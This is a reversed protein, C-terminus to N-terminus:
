IKGAAMYETRGGEDELWGQDCGAYEIRAAAEEAESVTHFLTLGSVYKVRNEAGPRDEDNFQSLTEQLRARMTSTDGDLATAALMDGIMAITYTKTM